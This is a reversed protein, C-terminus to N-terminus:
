SEEPLVFQVARLVRHTGRFALVFFPVPVMWIVPLVALWVPPEPEHALVALTVLGLSILAAAALVLRAVTRRRAHVQGMTRNYRAVTFRDFRGGESTSTGASPAASFRGRDSRAVTRDLDVGARSPDGPPRRATPPDNEPDSRRDDDRSRVFALEDTARALEHEISEVATELNRSRAAM